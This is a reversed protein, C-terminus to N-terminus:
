SREDRGEKVFDVGYERWLDGVAEENGEAALVMLQRFRPDDKASCEAKRNWTRNQQNAM